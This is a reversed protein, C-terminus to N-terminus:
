TSNVVKKVVKKSDTAKATSKRMFYGLLVDWLRLGHMPLINNRQQEESASQKPGKNPDDDPDFAAKVADSFKLKLVTRHTTPATYYIHKKLLALAEKTDRRKAIATPPPSEDDLDLPGWRREQQVAGETTHASSSSSANDATLVVRANAIMKKAKEENKARKRAAKQADRKFKRDWEEQGELWRMTPVEKIIGIEAAPLSLVSMEERPDMPRTRGKIDVRERIMSFKDSDLPKEKQTSGNQTSSNQTATPNASRLDSAATDNSPTRQLEPEPFPHQALYEADHETVHQIFSGISRYAYAASEIFTFVTFVHCMDDFVQLKVNTPETYRESNEQQRRADRLAGKRTPFREPDAARHALYIIEDRLAEDNGAMIYLPPLGGLSGQLVPSVLPHTLQETTAYQQIQSKQLQLPQADVNSMKVVPPRPEWEDVDYEKSDAPGKSPQGHASDRDEAPTEGALRAETPRLQDAHGPEPPPSSKAPVVRREEPLLDMPWTTSPRYIFGHPPIIDTATNEMVSPFSHTLDVWPSILVCGAPLPVGMDRLISLTSVCLGGGASDGALVIKSPPIAKHLANAPPRILYLYAALCDQLACPFPYQPSKRYNVAFVRGKIKRAYRILQYRHTNISGWSYGGGHFYLMVRDLKEMKLVARDDESLKRGPSGTDGSLYEKQTIWEADIGNDSGRVQWWREGGVVAKLEDPGFWDILIDAAANCTELPISVEAVSAWYPSPVHTNTFAQLSEITNLTGLHIFAKVIHFAEDFFIDDQAQDPRNERHKIALRKGHAFFTKIVVPTIHVAASFTSVPM